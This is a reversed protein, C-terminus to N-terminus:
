NYTATTRNDWSDNSIQVLTPRNSADYTIKQLVWMTDSTAAGKYNFGVYVPNDDTRVDYDIRKQSMFAAPVPEIVTKAGISTEGFPHAHEEKDISPQANGPHNLSMYFAGKPAWM